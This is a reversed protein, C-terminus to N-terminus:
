RQSPLDVDEVHSRAYSSTFPNPKGNHMQPPIKYAIREVVAMTWVSGIDSDKDTRGSYVGQLVAKEEVLGAPGASNITSGPRYAIVPSGSQGPRTRSDIFFRDDPDMGPESAVSGKTWIPTSSVFNGVSKPYGVVYLTDTISLPLGEAQDWKYVFRDL